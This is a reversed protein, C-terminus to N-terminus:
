HITDALSFIPLYLAILVFAVFAGMVIMIAPEILSLMAAMRTNVDEEFFEAVSNLMSPLAGTSEGVEIMDIALPPFMKSAKLSGSLPQGERVSKGAAEIARKLLPTGLSDAATEMAQVLPIGGVLLTSLIRSLQAVQYKLWVEGVLPMKLKVLDMKERASDKRLWWRMGMIALILAAAFVVIYKQAATGFAILYVTMTPLTANMTSYLAAFTPVVYTVMFVMLLVVLVMLVAPLILSVKIKKKVALSLKQYTIYRDLVETLSGSKEGAMVTTVFIKPFIGQQRFAESLLSGGRVEDRVSKIYPGLKPDTLRESLLDLGKLIPLGARILTVFQQNFILFKELDLKKRGGFLGVSAIGAGAARAKISYILYGQQSYKERLEKESTASAVQQHIQGRGDAYKLVFDPM